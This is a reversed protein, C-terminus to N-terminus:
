DDPPRIIIAPVSNYEGGGEGGLTGNKQFGYLGKFRGVGGLRYRIVPGYSHASTNPESNSKDHVSTDSIFVLEM